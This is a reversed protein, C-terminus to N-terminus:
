GSAHGMYPVFVLCVCVFVGGGGWFFSFSRADTAPHNRLTCCWGLRVLPAVVNSPGANRVAATDVCVVVGTNPFADRLRIYQALAQFPTKANISVRAEQQASLCKVPWCTLREANGVDINSIEGSLCSTRQHM